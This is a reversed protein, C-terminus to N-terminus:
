VRGDNVAEKCEFCLARLMGGETSFERYEARERGCVDCAAPYDVGDALRVLPTINTFYSCNLLCPLGESCADCIESASECGMKFYDCFGIM